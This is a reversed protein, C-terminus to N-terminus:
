IIIWRAVNNFDNMYSIIKYFMSFILMNGGFRWLSIFSRTFLLRTIKIACTQLRACRTDYLHKAFFCIYTKHGLNAINWIYRHMFIRVAEYFLSVTMSVKIELYWRLAVITALFVYIKWTNVNESQISIWMSSHLQM